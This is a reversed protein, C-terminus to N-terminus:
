EPRQGLQYTAQAQSYIHQLTPDNARGAVRAARYAAAAAAREALREEVQDSHDPYAALVFSPLADRIKFATEVTRGARGLALRSEPTYEWWVHIANGAVTVAADGPVGDLILAMVHPALVDSAFRVDSSHVSHRSAFALSETEWDTGPDDIDGPHRPLIALDPLWAGVLQAMGGVWHRVGGDTPTFAKPGEALLAPHDDKALAAVAMVADSILDLDPDTDGLPLSPPPATQVFVAVGIDDADQDATPVSEPAAAWLLSAHSRNDGGMRHLSPLATATRALASQAWLDVLPAVPTWAGDWCPSDDPPFM